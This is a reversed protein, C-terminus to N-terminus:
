KAVEAKVGTHKLTIQSSATKVDVNIDYPLSDITSILAEIPNISAGGASVNFSEGLFKQFLGGIPSANIATQIADKPGAM